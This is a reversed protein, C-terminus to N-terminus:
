RVVRWNLTVAAGPTISKSSNNCFKFNVNGYTPYKVITLMSGPEYGLSTTPDASFDALINDSTAVGPAAVIKTACTGSSIAIGGELTVTGQAITQSTCGACKGLYNSAASSLGKDLNATGGIISVSHPTGAIDLSTTSPGSSVTMPSLMVLDGTYRSAVEYDYPGTASQTKANNLVVPGSGQLYFPYGTGNESSCGNCITTNSNDFFFGNGANSDSASSEFQALFWGSVYYGCYAGDAYCMHCHFLDGTRYQKIEFGFGGRGGFGDIRVNNLDILAAAGTGGEDYTSFGAATSTRPGIIYIDTFRQSFAGSGILIGGLSDTSTIQILFNEMKFNRINEPVSIAAGLGASFNLVTTRVNAGRLTLGNCGYGRLVNSFTYTGPPFWVVAGTRLPGVACAATIAAEVANLSDHAGTPDAGYEPRTVDVWPDGEQFHVSGNVANANNSIVASGGATGGSSRLITIRSLVGSILATCNSSLRKKFTGVLTESSQMQVLDVIFLCCVVLALIGKSPSTSQVAHRM